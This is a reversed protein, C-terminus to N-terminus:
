LMKKLKFTSSPNMTNWFLTVFMQIERMSTAYAVETIRTSDPDNDKTPYIM